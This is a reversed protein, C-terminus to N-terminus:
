SELVQQLIQLDREVLGIDEAYKEDSMDPPRFITFIVESGSGNPLVRMPVYVEIGSAPCVYHDLVGLNNKEVFRIKMPGQPTEVIWENNSRRVSRCLGGAWKPLNDPNSVFAYVKAPPCAISISLTRSMSRREM